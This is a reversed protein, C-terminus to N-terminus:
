LKDLQQSLEFMRETIERARADDGAETATDLDASLGSIELILRERALERNEDEELDRLYAELREQENSQEPKTKAM